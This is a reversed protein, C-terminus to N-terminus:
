NTKELQEVRTKLNEIEGRLIGIIEKGEDDYIAHENVTPYAALGDDTYLQVIAAEKGM